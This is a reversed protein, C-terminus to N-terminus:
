LNSKNIEIRCLFGISYLISILINIVYFITVINKYILDPMKTIFSVFSFFPFILVVDFLIATTIWFAPQRALSQIDARQFIEVLYYICFSVTFLGGFTFNVPNFGVKKQFYLNIFAFIPFLFVVFLIIKKMKVNLVLERLVFFYFCFEITGAINYVGSNYKGHRQLFGEVLGVIFSLFFYVPFLKLYFPAPNQFFVTLSIIFLIFEIIDFGSLSM